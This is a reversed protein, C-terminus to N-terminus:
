SALRRRGVLALAALGLGTLAWSAPEPTASTASDSEIDINVGTVDPTGNANNFVFFDITNAGANFTANSSNLVFSTFSTFEQPNNPINGSTGLTVKTGNVEIFGYNDASWQGTIVASSPVLGTLSFSEQYVYAVTASDPDSNTSENAFPSIWESTSSDALWAPSGTFPFQGTDTVFPAEPTTM